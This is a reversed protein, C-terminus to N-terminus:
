LIVLGTGSWHGIDTLDYKEYSIGNWFNKMEQNLNIDDLLLKGHWNNDILFDLIKQETVGTHDIDLMIFPSSHIEEIPQEMFNGIIWEINSPENKVTKVDVIDFSKIINNSNYSMAVASCGRYTGIDYLLAQNYLTSIYSLLLYHEQGPGLLFYSRSELNQIVTSLDLLNIEKKQIDTVNFM